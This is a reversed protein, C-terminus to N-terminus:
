CSRNIAWTWGDQLEVKGFHSAKIAVVNNQHLGQFNCMASKRCKALWCWIFWNWNAQIKCMRKHKLTTLNFATRTFFFCKKEVNAQKTLLLEKIQRFVIKNQVSKQRRTVKTEANRNGQCKKEEEFYFIGNSFWSHGLVDHLPIPHSYMLWNESFLGNSWSFVM